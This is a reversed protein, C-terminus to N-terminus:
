KVETENITKILYLIQELAESFYVKNTEDETILFDKEKDNLSERILLYLKDDIENVKELPMGYFTPEKLKSM